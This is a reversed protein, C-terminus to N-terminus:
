SNVAKRALALAGDLTQAGGIFGAPHCFTADAVGTEEQLKEEKIGKWSAPVAKRQGFSGLSTPVCQFNYGGRNSPFVVFWVDMAKPNESSFIYEQWPAFRELVMIHDQSEGIAKEVIEKAKAKSIEQKVTNDFVVSALESAKLFAEDAEEESDWPVNFNAIVMSITMAQCPYEAKPMKGNDIADIGQILDRDVWNLVLDIVQGETGMKELVKHGYKQWVLGCAAYPVGNERSGNGGKQHHDLEGGGVDYVIVNSELNEPVKFTRCVKVDELLKELIVTAFVEDAHFKGSHTVLTANEINKVIRISM